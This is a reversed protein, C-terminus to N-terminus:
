NTFPLEINFYDLGFYKFNFLCDKGKGLKNFQVIKVYVVNCSM